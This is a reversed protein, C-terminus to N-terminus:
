RINVIMLRISQGIKCALFSLSQSATVHELGQSGPAPTEPGWLHAWTERSLAWAAVLWGDQGGSSDQTRRAWGQRGRRQDETQSLATGAPAPIHHSVKPWLRASLCAGGRGKQEETRGRRPRSAPSGHNRSGHFLHHNHHSSGHAGCLQLEARAWAGLSTWPCLGLWGSEAPTRLGNQM